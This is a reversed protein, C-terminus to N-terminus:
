VNEFSAKKLQRLTEDDIEIVDILDNNSIVYLRDISNIFIKDFKIPQNHNNEVFLDIVDHLELVVHAFIYLWNQSFLRYGNNLKKTKHAVRTKILETHRSFDCLGDHESYVAHGDVVSIRGIIKPYRKEAEEMIYEGCLGKGFYQNIISLHNGQKKTIARTVEIGIDLERSQYDPSEGKSDGNLLPNLSRDYCLVLSIIAYKEYYEKSYERTGMEAIGM